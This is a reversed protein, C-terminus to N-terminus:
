KDKQYLTYGCRCFEAIQEPSLGITEGQDNVSAVFFPGHICHTKGNETIKCYYQSNYFGEEDFWIDINNNLRLCELNDAGVLNQREELTQPLEVFRNNQHDFLIIKEM